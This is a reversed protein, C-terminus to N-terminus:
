SRLFHRMHFRERLRRGCEVLGNRMKRFSCQRPGSSSSLHVARLERYHEAVPSERYVPGVNASRHFEAPYLVAANIPPSVRVLREVPSARPKWIVVLVRPIPLNLFVQALPPPWRSRMSTSCSCEVLCKQRRVGTRRVKRVGEWGPHRRRWLISQFM